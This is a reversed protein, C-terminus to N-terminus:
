VNKTLEYIHVNHCLFYIYLLLSVAMFVFNRNSKRNFVSRVINPAIKIQSSSNSPIFQTWNQGGVVRHYFTSVGTFYMSYVHTCECVSLCVCVCVYSSCEFWMLRVTIFLNYCLILVCFILIWILCSEVYFVVICPIIINCSLHKVILGHIKLKMDIYFEDTQILYTRYNM